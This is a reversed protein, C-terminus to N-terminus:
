SAGPGAAPGFVADLYNKMMHHVAAEQEALPGPEYLPSAMANQLSTVMEADEGILQRLFGKYTELNERFDPADLAPPAFLLYVLLQSREPTVPWVQWMRLSDFRMSLNLNPYIGARSSTDGAMGSLWPLPPFVQKGTSSHPPAKQDYSWGGRPLLRIKFDDGYKVFRGFTGKHLVPVHYVDVLNEILLKWNCAM